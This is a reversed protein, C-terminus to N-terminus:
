KLTIYKVKSKRTFVIMQGIYAGLFYTKSIKKKEVKIKFFSLIKLLISIIHHVDKVWDSNNVNM